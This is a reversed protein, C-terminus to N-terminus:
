SWACAVSPNDPATYTNDLDVNTRHTYINGGHFITGREDEKKHARQVTHIMAVGEMVSGRAIARVAM